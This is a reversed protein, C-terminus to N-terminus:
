RAIGIKKVVKELSFKELSALNRQSINIGWEPDSKKGEYKRDVLLENPQDWAGSPILFLRPPEGQIFIVVAALLNDRLQFKKKPLFIYNMGRISKVQIDFYQGADNRVVFDIGKDDVEATYIDLGYLTLEMKILYEAYRGLQLHNLRRWDYKNM